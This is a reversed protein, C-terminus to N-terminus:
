KEEVAKAVKEESAPKDKVVKGTTITGGVANIKEEAKASWLPAVIKVKKTM